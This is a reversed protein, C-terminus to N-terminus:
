GIPKVRRCQKRQCRAALWHDHRTLKESAGVGSQLTVHSPCNVVWDSRPAEHVVRARRIPKRIAIRVLAGQRNEFRRNAWKQIFVFPFKGLMYVEALRLADDRDTKRKLHKFKWAESSTNAVLFAAGKEVCLDRVWSAVLCAELLVVAPRHSDLLRALAERQTTVSYFRHDHASHYLPSPGADM